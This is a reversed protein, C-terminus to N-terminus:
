IKRLRNLHGSKRDQGNICQSQSVSIGKSKSFTLFLLPM